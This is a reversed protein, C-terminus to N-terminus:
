KKEFIGSTWQEASLTHCDWLTVGTGRQTSGGPVDLCKRSTDNLTHGAILRGEGINTPHPDYTWQQHLKTTDCKNLVIKTRNSKNGGQPELCLNEGNTTKKIRIQKTAPDYSYQQNSGGHCQYMQQTNGVGARGGKSDLCFNSRVMSKIPKFVKSPHPPPPEVYTIGNKDINYTQIMGGNLRITQKVVDNEGIFDVLMTSARKQCCDGRNYYVFQYMPYEKDFDLRWYNKDSANSSHYGKPHRQPIMDGDIPNDKMNKNAWTNLVSTTGYNAINQGKGNYYAYVAVQGIQIYNSPNRFKISKIMLPPKSVNTCNVGYDATISSPEVSGGTFLNCKEYGDPPKNTNTVSESNIKTTQDQYYIGLQGNKFLGGFMGNDSEALTSAVKTVTYLGGNKASNVDSGTFCQYEDNDDKSVAYVSKGSDIAWQKCAVNIEDEGLELSAPYAQKFDSDAPGLNNNKIYCGEYTDKLESSNPNQNSFINYNRKKSVQEHKLYDRTKEELSKYTNAYESTKRDLEIHNDEYEKKEEINKDDIETSGIIGSFGEISYKNNNNNITNSKYKDIGITENIKNLDLNEIKQSQNKKYNIGQIKIQNNIYNQSTM